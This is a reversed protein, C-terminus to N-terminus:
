FSRIKKICTHSRNPFETVLSTRHSMRWQKVWVLTQILTWSLGREGWYPILSVSSLHRVWHWPLTPQNQKREKRLCAHNLYGAFCCTAPPHLPQPLPSHQLPNFFPPCTFCPPPPPPRRCPTIYRRLFVVLNKELTALKGAERWTGTRAGTENWSICQPM